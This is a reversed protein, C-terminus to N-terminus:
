EEQPVGALTTAATVEGLLPTSQEADDFGPDVRGGDAPHTPEAFPGVTAIRQGVKIDAGIELEWRVAGPETLLIVTSGLNFRGLEAGRHAPIPPSYGQYAAPHGTNSELEAFPVSIRGVGYAGVLVVAVRGAQPTDVLVAMRENRAFLNPIRRTAEPFVPWLQGPLYRLGVTQGDLPHHVRHYDKPSLYLVAFGGGRYRPDGGVLEVADLPLGTELPLVGDEPLRGYAYVMADCPSVLADPAPDVPRADPKLPRVFFDQLTDYDEPTGIMETTDVGYRNVYWRIILRSLGLRGAWGQLKSGLNKPVVSLLTVILADNM